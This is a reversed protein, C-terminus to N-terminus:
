KSILTEVIRRVDEIMGSDTAALRLLSWPWTFVTDDPGRCLYEKLMNCLAPPFVDSQTTIYMKVQGLIAEEM